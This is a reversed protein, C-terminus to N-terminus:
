LKKVWAELDARKVVLSGRPGLKSTKLKGASVAARIASEGYGSYAAAEKVTLALRRDLPPRDPAAKAAEVFRAFAELGSVEGAGASPPQSMTHSERRALARSEPPEVAPRHEALALSAKLRDLDAQKFDAVSRTKGPLYALVLRGKAVYNELTRVSVGLYGAAEQKTM